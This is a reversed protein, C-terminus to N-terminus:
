LNMASIAAILQPALFSNGFATPHIGDPNFLLPNSPASGAGMTPNAAYDCIVDAGGSNAVVLANYALRVAEFGGVNIAASPLITAIAVKNYGAGRAASILSTATSYLTAASTGAVIDNTGVQIFYGHSAYASDFIKGGRAAFGSLSSAMLQGPDSMNFQAVSASVQPWAQKPASMLGSALYGAGISDGDYAFQKTQASTAIGFSQQLKTVYPGAQATTLGANVIVLALINMTGFYSGGANSNGIFGGTMATASFGSGSLNFASGNIMLDFRSPQSLLTLVVPQTPITKGVLIFADGFTFAGLDTEAYLGIRESATQFDFFSQNNTSAPDVVAFVTFNNETLSLSHSLSQLTSGGSFSAETVGPYSASLAGLSPQNAVTGQSAANGSGSQDLYQTLTGTTGAFAVAAAASTVNSTSGGSTRVTALSAGKSSTFLPILSWAGSVNTLGDLPPAIAFCDSSVGNSESVRNSPASSGGSSNGLCSVQAGGPSSSYIFLMAAVAVAICTWRKM